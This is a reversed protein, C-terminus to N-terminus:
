VCRGVFGTAFLRGIRSAKGGHLLGHLIEIGDFGLFPQVGELGDEVALTFVASVVQHGPHAFQGCTATSRQGVADGRRVAVGDGDGTFGLHGAVQEHLTSDAGQDAPISQGHHHTRIQLIRVQAAVNGGKGGARREVVDAEVVEELRRGFLMAAVQDVVLAVGGGANVGTGEQFAAQGFLLHEVEALFDIALTQRAVRVRVQHWVEPLERGHGHAEARDSRDVLCTEHLVQFVAAENRFALLADPAEDTVAFAVLRFGEAGNGQGATLIEVVQHEDDVAVQLTQVARHAAVTLDNLFQFAHEFAGVPVDVLHDPTAQPIRQEGGVFVAAHLPAHVLRDVPFVLVVLGFVAGIHALVEKTSVGFQELTDLAHGVLFDPLEVAAAVIRVLDIRGIVLRDVVFALWRDNEGLGDLAVAGTGTLRLVDGVVGLFDIDVAQLFEAIAEVDRDVVRLEFLQREIARGFVARFHLVQALAAVLQAPM